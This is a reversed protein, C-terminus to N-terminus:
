KKLKDIYSDLIKAESSSFVVARVERTNGNSRIIIAGTTTNSGNRSFVTIKKIDM